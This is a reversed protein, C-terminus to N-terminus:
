DAPSAHHESRLLQFAANPLDLIRRNAIVSVIDRELVPWVGAPITVRAGSVDICSCEDFRYRRTTAM